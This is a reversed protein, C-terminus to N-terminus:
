LLSAYKFDNGYRRMFRQLDRNGTYFADNRSVRVTACVRLVVLCYEDCNFTGLQDSYVFDPLM